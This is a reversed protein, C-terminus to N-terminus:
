ANSKNIIATKKKKVLILVIMILLGSGCSLGLYDGWRAYVTQKSSSTLRSCICSEVNYATQSVIEGRSDIFCSTGTNACRAIFRRQEIARLRALNKHQRYGPSNGWWGDNTVITIFSPEPLSLKCFKYGFMSEYCIAPQIYLNGINFLTNAASNDFGTSTAGVTFLLKRSFAFNSLLPITEVGPLLLQKHYVQINSPNEICLLSNYHLKEGGVQRSTFCGVLVTSPQLTSFYRLLNSSNLSDEPIERTIATEPFVIIRTSKLAHKKALAVMTVIQEEPTRNFKQTYCDVNPQVLLIEDGQKDQTVNNYIFGSAIAPIIIVFLFAIVHPATIRLKGDIIKNILGFLIINSALVWLSGGLIGTYEYWQILKVDRAFANGLVLWPLSFNGHLQLWEGTIWLLVLLTAQFNVINDRRIYHWIVFPVSMILANFILSVIAGDLTSLVLWWAAGVNWVLFSAYTMLFFAPFSIDDKHSSAIREAFLLPVLAM